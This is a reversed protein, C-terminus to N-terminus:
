KQCTPIQSLQNHIEEYALQSNYHSPKIKKGKIQFYEQKRSGRTSYGTVSVQLHDDLRARWNEFDIQLDLLKAVLDNGGIRGLQYQEQQNNILVYVSMGDSERTYGKGELVEFVQGEKIGIAEAIPSVLIEKVACKSTQEHM